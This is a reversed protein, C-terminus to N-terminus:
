VSNMLMTTCFTRTSRMSGVQTVNGADLMAIFQDYTVDTVQSQNVLPVIFAQLLLIVVLVIIANYLMSKKPTPPNKDPM